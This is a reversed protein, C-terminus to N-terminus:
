HGVLRGEMVVLVEAAAKEGGTAADRQMDPGKFRLCIWRGGARFRRLHTSVWEV